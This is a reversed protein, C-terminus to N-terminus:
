RKKKTVGRSRTPPKRTRLLRAELDEIRERQRKLEQRQRFIWFGSGILALSFTISVYVTVQVVGRVSTDEGAFPDTVYHACWVVFGLAVIALVAGVVGIGFRITKMRESVTHETLPAAAANGDATM